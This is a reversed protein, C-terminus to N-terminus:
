SQNHYIAQLFNTLIADGSNGDIPISKIVKIEDGGGEAEKLPPAGPAPPAGAPPGGAPPAGEPGGPPPAEPAAVPQEEGGRVKILATYCFKKDPQLLKKVVITSNNTFDDSKSYQVKFKDHVTPRAEDFNQIAQNEKPTLEFGRYMKLTQDFDGHATKTSAVVKPTPEEEETLPAPSGMITRLVRLIRKKPSTGCEQLGCEQMLFDKVDQPDMKSAAEGAKGSKPMKGHQMAYVAHFFHRQAPSTSPM